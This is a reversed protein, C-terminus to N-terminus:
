ADTGGKAKAIAEDADALLQRGIEDTWDMGPICWSRLAKLAALLDAHCNVARVILAANAEAPMEGHDTVNAVFLGAEPSLIMTSGDYPRVFVSWPLPSHDPM